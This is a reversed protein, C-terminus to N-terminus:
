KDKSSAIMSLANQREAEQNVKVRDAMTRNNLEIEYDVGGEDDDDEESGM